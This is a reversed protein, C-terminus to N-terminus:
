PALECNGRKRGIDWKGEEKEKKGKEKKESKEKEKEKRKLMILYRGDSGAKAKFETPRKKDPSDPICLTLTNEGLKYIAHITKKDKEIFDIAAPKGDSILRYTVTVTSEEGKIQIQGATIVVM